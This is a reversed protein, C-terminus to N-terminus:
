CPAAVPFGRHSLKNKGGLDGVHRRQHQRLHRATRELRRPLVRHARQALEAPAGSAAADRGEDHEIGVPQGIEAVVDVGIRLMAAGEGAMFGRVHDLIQTVVQRTVGHERFRDRLLRAIGPEAHDGM